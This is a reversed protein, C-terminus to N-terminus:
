ALVLRKHAFCMFAETIVKQGETNPHTGDLCLMHEIRRHKLFAGRLDVLLAGTEKAITEVARSYSEQFRYITTVEGLWGLINDRNLERCHWNFFRQPDIPPLTSLVPVIGRAKLTDIIERYLQVFRDLPTKPQHEADPNESIERWNFDCDNGGYDMIVTDCKEGSELRKKLMEFGRGITCGVKSYNSVAISFRDCIGKIDINNIIRYHRKEPDLQMGKFISDGFVAVNRIIDMIVVM